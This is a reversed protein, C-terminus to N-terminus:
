GNQEPDNPKKVSKNKRGYKNERIFKRNIKNFDAVDGVSIFPKFHLYKEGNSYEKFFIDVMNKLQLRYLCTEMVKINFHPDLKGDDTLRLTGEKTKFGAKNRNVYLFNLPLSKGRSLNLILIYLRKFEEKLEQNPFWDRPAFDVYVHDLIEEVDERDLIEYVLNVIKNRTSKGYKYFIKKRDSLDLSYFNIEFINKM